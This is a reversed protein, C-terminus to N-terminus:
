EILYFVVQDRTIFSLDTEIALKDTGQTESDWLNAWNVHKDPVEVRVLLKQDCKFIVFWSEVNSLISVCFECDVVQESELQSRYDLGRNTDSKDVHGFDCWWQVLSYFSIFWGQHFLVAVIYDMLSSNVSFFITVDVFLFGIGIQDMGSVM